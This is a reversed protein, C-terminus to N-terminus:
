AADELRQQHMHDLYADVRSAHKATKGQHAFRTFAARLADIATDYRDILHDDEPTRDRLPLGRSLLLRMLVDTDAGDFIFAEVYRPMGMMEEIAQEYEDESYRSM